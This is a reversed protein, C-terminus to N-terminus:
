LGASVLRRIFPPKGSQDLRRTVEVADTVERLDVLLEVAADYGCSKKEAIRAAVRAWVAAGEAALGALRERRAAEARRTLEASRAERRDREIREREGR